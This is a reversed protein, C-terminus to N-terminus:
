LPTYSYNLSAPNTAVKSFEADGDAYVKSGASDIRFIQWKATALATGVAAFCFYDYGGSNVAYIQLNDANQRQLNTTGDYGLTHIANMQTSKDFSKNAIHELTYNNDDVDM